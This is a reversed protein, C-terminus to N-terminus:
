EGGLNGDLLEVVALIAETLKKVTENTKKINENIENLKEDRKADNELLRAGLANVSMDIDIATVSLKKLFDEVTYEKKIETNKVKENEQM